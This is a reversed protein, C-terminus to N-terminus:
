TIAWDPLPGTLASLDAMGATSALGGSLLSGYAKGNIFITSLQDGQLAARAARYTSSKDMGSGSARADLAGRVSAPDGLLAQRGDIVCAASGSAGISLELGRYTEKTVQQGKFPTDCTVTGTTTASVVGQEMPTTGSAAQGPLRFAIFTPGSLWPKIDRVYDLDGNGGRQVLRSLSEDIKASLTSQDAFGPFHALLNGLKQLQDGPLDMRVEVVVAADAPIYSLAQPAPRSGLVIFAGIAVVAALAAVGIGVALRVRNPGISGGTVAAGAGTPPVADQPAAPEAPAAPEPETPPSPTDIPRTPDDTM